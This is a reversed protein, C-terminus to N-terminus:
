HKGQQTETKSQNWEEKRHGWKEGKSHSYKDQFHTVKNKINCLSVALLKGQTESLTLSTVPLPVFGGHSEVRRLLLDSWALTRRRGV